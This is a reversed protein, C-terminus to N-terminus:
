DARNLRRVVFGPDSGLRYRFGFRDGARIPGFSADFQPYTLGADYDSLRLDPAVDICTRLMLDLGEPLDQPVQLCQERLEGSGSALDKILAPLSAASLEILNGLVLRRRKTEPDFEDRQSALAASVRIRWPVLEADEACQPLLNATVALQPERALARQMTEVFLVDARTDGPLRLTSADACWAHGIRDDLGLSSLLHAAADLADAHYDILDIRVNPGHHQAMLVALPALPGCGAYLVHVPRDPRAQRKAAIAADLAQAFRCTRLFDLVCRAASLPALAKGSPLQSDDEALEPLQSVCGDYLADCARKQAVPTANRDLIIACITALDLASVASM